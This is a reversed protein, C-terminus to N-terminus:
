LLDMEYRINYLFKNVKERLTLKLKPQALRAQMDAEIMKWVLIDYPTYDISGSKVPTESTCTCM